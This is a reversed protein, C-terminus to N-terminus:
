AVRKHWESREPAKVITIRRIANPNTATPRREQGKDKATTNLTTSLKYRKEAKPETTKTPSMKTNSAHTCGRRPRTLSKIPEPRVPLFNEHFKPFARDRFAHIIPKHARPETLTPSSGDSKLVFIPPVAGKSAKTNLSTVSRSAFVYGSRLRVVAISSKQPRFIKAERM